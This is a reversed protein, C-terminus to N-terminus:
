TVLLGRVAPEKNLFEITASTLFKPVFTSCQTAKYNWKQMLYIYNILHTICWVVLM